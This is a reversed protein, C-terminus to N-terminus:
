PLILLTDRDQWALYEAWEPDPDVHPSASPSAQAAPRADPPPGPRRSYPNDM